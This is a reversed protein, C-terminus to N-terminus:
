STTISKEDCNLLNTVFEGVSNASSTDNHSDTLTLSLASPSDDLNSGGILCDGIDDMRSYKRKPINSSNKQSTSNSFANSTLHHDQHHLQYQNHHQNQQTINHTTAQQHNSVPSNPSSSTISNLELFSSDLQYHLPDSNQLNLISDIANQVQRSIDDVDDVFNIQPMQSTDMMHDVDGSAQQQQQQQQEIISNLHQQQQQINHNSHLNSSDNNQIQYQNEDMDHDLGNWERHKAMDDSTSESTLNIDSGFDFSDDIWKNDFSVSPETCTRKSTTPSTPFIMGSNTSAFIDCSNANWQRKNANSTNAVVPEMRSTTVQIQKQIMEDYTLDSNKYLFSANDLASEDNPNVSGSQFLQELRTEVLDQQSSKVSDDEPGGFLAELRNEVTKESMTSTSEVHFLENLEPPSSADLLDNSKSTSSFLDDLQKEVSKPSNHNEFIDSLDSELAKTSQIKLNKNSGSTEKRKANTTNSCSADLHLNLEKQISLWEDYAGDHTETKIVENIKNKSPILEMKVSNLYDSFPSCEREKEKEKTLSKSTKKNNTSSTTSSSQQANPECKKMIFNSRIESEIDFDDLEDKLENILKLTTQQQQPSQQTQQLPQANHQNINIQEIKLKDFKSLGKQQLNTTSSPSISSSVPSKPSPISTSQVSSNNVMMGFSKRSNDKPIEPIEIKIRENKINEFLKQEQKAKLIQSPEHLSPVFHARQSPPPNIIHAQQQQGPSQTQLNSNQMHQVSSQPKSITSQCIPETKITIQSESQQQQQQQQEFLASNIEMQMSVIEDKLDAVQLRDLMM